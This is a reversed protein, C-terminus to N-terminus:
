QLGRIKSLSIRRQGNSQMKGASEWIIRGDGDYIKEFNEVKLIRLCFVRLDAIGYIKM